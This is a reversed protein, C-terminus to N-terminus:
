QNKKVVESKERACKLLGGFCEGRDKEDVQIIVFELSKKNIFNYGLSELIEWKKRSEDDPIYAFGVFIDKTLDNFKEEYFEIARETLKEDLKKRNDDIVDDSLEFSKLNPNIAFIL